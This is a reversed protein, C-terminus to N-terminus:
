DQEKKIHINQSLSFSRLYYAPNPQFIIAHFFELNKNKIFISQSKHNKYGIAKTRMVM